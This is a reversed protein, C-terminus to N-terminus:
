KKAQAPKKKEGSKKSANPEKGNEASDAVGKDADKTYDPDDESRSAMRKEAKEDNDKTEM